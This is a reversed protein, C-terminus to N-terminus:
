EIDLKNEGLKSRPMINLVIVRHPVHPWMAGARVGYIISVGNDNKQNGNSSLYGYLYIAM